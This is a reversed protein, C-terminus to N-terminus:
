ALRYRRPRTDARHRRGARFGAEPFGWESVITRVLRARGQHRLPRTMPRLKAVLEAARHGKRALGQRGKIRCWDAEIEARTAPAGDQRRWPLHLAMEIPDILVGIACTVLGKVDLYMWPVVGELPANFAVWGARVQHAIM